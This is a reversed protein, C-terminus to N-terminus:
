VGLSSINAPLLISWQWSSVGWPMEQLKAQSFVLFTPHFHFTIPDPLLNVGSGCDRCRSVMLKILSLESSTHQSRCTQKVWQGPWSLPQCSTSVTVEHIDSVGGGLAPAARLQHKGLESLLEAKQQLFSGVM